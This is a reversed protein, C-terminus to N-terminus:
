LQQRDAQRAVPRPDGTRQPRSRMPWRQALEVGVILAFGAAYIALFPLAWNHGAREAAFLCALAYLLLASEAILQPQLPLRYSSQRWSDAAANVQFKPTRL